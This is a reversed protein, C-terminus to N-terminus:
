HSLCLHCDNFICVGDSNWVDKKAKRTM